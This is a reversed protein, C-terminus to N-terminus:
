GVTTRRPCITRFGPVAWRDTIAGLRTAAGPTHYQLSWSSDVDPFAVLRDPYRIASEAGYLNNEPNFDIQACIVVARAVENRDM